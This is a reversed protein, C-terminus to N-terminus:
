VQDFAPHYRVLGHCGQLAGPHLELAMFVEDPVPYACILRFTSAPLFGFRPYYGPHGLVVVGGYGAQRCATLGEQVLRGGIGRRQLDPLVAMPGLGAIPRTPTASALSLPSFAIYGVIRDDLVAVLLAITHGQARLRDVLDAEATRGFAQALVHRIAPLDAVAEPRIQMVCGLISAGHISHPELGAQM